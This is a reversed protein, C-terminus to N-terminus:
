SFKKIQHYLHQIDTDTIEKSSRIYNLYSVFAKSDAETQNIKNALQFAFGNNLENTKLSYKSRLYELYYQIMKESLNANDKKNYYLMGITEAFELSSNTNPPLVPIIKQRRKSEFLTYIILLGLIIFFTYRISPNKLLKSLSSEDDEHNNYKKMSFWSVSSVYEPFYSLLKEYYERNNNQLLFHNTFALNNLGIIFNGQRIINPNQSNNIFGISNLSDSYSTDRTFFDQSNRGVFNYTKFAANFRISYKNTTEQKDSADFEQHYESTPEVQFHHTINESFNTSLILLYNGMAIYSQVKDLESDTLSINQTVVIVLNNKASYTSTQNVIEDIRQIFNKSTSIDADPFISPLMNNAIFCGYPDKSKSDLSVAWNTKKEQSCSFFLGMILFLIFFKKSM